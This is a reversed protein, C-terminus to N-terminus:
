VDPTELPMFARCDDDETIDESFDASRFKKEYRGTMKEAGAYRACKEKKDCGLYPTCRIDDDKLNM